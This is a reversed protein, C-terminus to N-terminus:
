GSRRVGLVAARRVVLRRRAGPEEAPVLLEGADVGLSARGDAAGLLDLGVAAGYSRLL